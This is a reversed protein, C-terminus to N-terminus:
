QNLMSKVVPCYKVKTKNTTSHLTSPELKQTTFSVTFVSAHCIGRLHCYLSPNRGHHRIAYASALSRSWSAAATVAATKFHLWKFSVKSLLAIM